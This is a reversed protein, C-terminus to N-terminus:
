DTKNFKRIMLRSKTILYIRMGTIHIQTKKYRRISVIIQGFIILIWPLLFFGFKTQSSFKVFQKKILEHILEIM